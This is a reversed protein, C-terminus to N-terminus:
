YYHWRNFINKIWFCSVALASRPSVNNPFPITSTQGSVINVQAIVNLINKDNNGGAIYLNNGMAVGGAFATPVSLSLSPQPSVFAKVMTDYVLIDKFYNTSNNYGGVFYLKGNDVMGVLASRGGATPFVITPRITFSDIDSEGLITGLGNVAQVEWYYKVNPSFTTNSTRFTDLPNQLPTNNIRNATNNYIPLSTSAM